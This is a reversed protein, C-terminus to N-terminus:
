LRPGEETLGRCLKRRDHDELSGSATIKAILTLGDFDVPLRDATGATRVAFGQENKADHVLLCGGTGLSERVRDWLLHLDYRM